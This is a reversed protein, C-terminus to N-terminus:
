RDFSENSVENMLFGTVEGLKSKAAAMHDAAWDHGNSLLTDVKAPDLGQIKEMMRAISKMDEFFMYHEMKASLDENTAGENLFEYFSKINKLTKM